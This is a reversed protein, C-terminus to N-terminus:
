RARLAFARAEAPTQSHYKKFDNLLHSQDTYGYRYVADQVNFLGHKLIDQWLYQYRVLGSLRKPSVGVYEQFLRELQRQGTMAYRALEAVQATGRSALVKYVANMVFQNQKNLNLRNVLYQEARAVREQISLHEFLIQEFDRRFNKFYPEVDPVPNLVNRMSEGSFLPVAWFYFRIAFCSSTSPVAQAQTQFSTINIGSFRDELENHDVDMNFIIDMCTDPIVLRPIAPPLHTGSAPQPTGWFCRIYPRLADCPQVEVYSANHLFPHATAPRYIKSLAFM